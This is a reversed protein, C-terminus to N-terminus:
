SWEIINLKSKRSLDAAETGNQLNSPNKRMNKMLNRLKEWNKLGRTKGVNDNENKTIDKAKDM